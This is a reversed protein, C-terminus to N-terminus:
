VRVPVDALLRIRVAEELAHRFDAAYEADSRTRLTQSAAPYDFDWYPAVQVHRETVLM